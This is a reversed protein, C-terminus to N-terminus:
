LKRDKKGVFFFPSAMPSESKRIYGKKLNENLFKKMKTTEKPTLRYPKFLVPKFTEKLDIKHDYIQSPPFQESKKRNFISSYDQFEEPITAPPTDKAKGKALERATTTKYNLKLPTTTIRNLEEKMSFEDSDNPLTYYETLDNKWESDSAPDGTTTALYDLAILNLNTPYNMSNMLDTLPTDTLPLIPGLVL